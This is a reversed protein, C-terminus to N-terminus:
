VQESFSSGCLVCGRPEGRFSCVNCGVSPTLPGADFLMELHLSFKSFGAPSNAKVTLDLPRFEEVSEGPDVVLTLWM